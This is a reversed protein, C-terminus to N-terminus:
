CVSIFKIFFLDCRRIIGSLLNFIFLAERIQTPSPNTQPKKAVRVAMCAKGANRLALEPNLATRSVQTNQVQVDPSKISEAMASARM